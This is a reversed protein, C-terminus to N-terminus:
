GTVGTITAGTAPLGVQFGAETLIEDVKGDRDTEQRDIKVSTDRSGGDGGQLYRYKLGGKKMDVVFGMKGYIVGELLKHKVISLTGNPTIYDTYNVGYKSQGVATNLKAKSFGMLVSILFPSAFLIKEMGGDRFVNTALWSEWAAETLTGGVALANQNLYHLVGGTTRLPGDTGAIESPKGFLGATEIDLKHEVMAKVHQHKWDHPNTENDSSLWTGTTGITKKFIQTYNTVFTPNDSRVAPARSGEDAAYGMVLLPDTDVLAAATSGSFGRVVTLTNTAVATVRMTENTRPVKVIAGPYFRTGNAVVISTVGSAYGAGFNISDWRNERQDEAWKFEPNVTKERNGGGATQKLIVTYPTESPDLNLITSSVDIKRQGAAVNTTTRQGTFQPM